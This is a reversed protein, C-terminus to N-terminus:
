GSKLERVLAHLSEIENYLMEPSASLQGSLYRRSFSNAAGQIAIRKEELQAETHLGSPGKSLGPHHAVPLSM